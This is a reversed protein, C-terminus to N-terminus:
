QSEELLKNLRERDKIIVRQRSYEIVGEKEIEAFVRSLAPRTVGFFESLEQHNRSLVVEDTGPKLLRLIYHALKQKITKFSIFRLKDSLFQTRDSITDLYNRLIGTSLQFLVLLSSKPIALLTVAENAVVDVPFVNSKGFLFAPALPRPPRIKEIEVSKGKYDAMEGRVAGELLVMLTSCEDGKFAIFNGKKYKKIRYRVQELLEEIKLPPVNRFLPSRALLKYTGPEM